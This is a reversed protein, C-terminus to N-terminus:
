KEMASKENSIKPDEKEETDGLKLVIKPISCRNYEMKSNLLLPGAFHDIMVAERIQREFASKHSSLIRMKFEITDPDVGPHKEVIHRLM